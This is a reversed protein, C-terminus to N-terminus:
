PARRVQWECHPWMSIHDGSAVRASDEGRSVVRMDGIIGIKSWEGDPHSRWAVLVDGIRIEPAKVVIPNGVPLAAHEPILGYERAEAYYARAFRLAASRLDRSFAEREKDTSSPGSHKTFERASAELAEGMKITNDSKSM